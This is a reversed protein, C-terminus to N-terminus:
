RSNATIPQRFTGDPVANCLALLMPHYEVIEQDIVNLVEGRSRPRGDPMTLDERVVLQM